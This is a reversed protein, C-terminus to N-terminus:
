FAAARRRVLVLFNSWMVGIKIDSWQSGTLYLISKLIKNNAKLDMLPRAGKYKVLKTLGYSGGLARLDAPCDSSVGGVNIVRLVLPSREKATAAGSSHFLRGSFILDAWDISTKLDRRLVWRKERANM